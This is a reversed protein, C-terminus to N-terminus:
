LTIPAGVALKDLAKSAFALHEKAYKIAQRNYKEQHHQLPKFTGIAQLVAKLAIEITECRKMRIKSETM